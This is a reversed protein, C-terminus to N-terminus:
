RPPTTIPKEPVHDIEMSPDNNNTVEQSTMVLSSSKLSASPLVPAVQRAPASRLRLSPYKEVKVPYYGQTTQYFEELTQKGLPIIPTM